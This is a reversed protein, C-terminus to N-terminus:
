NSLYTRLSHQMYKPFWEYKGSVSNDENGDYHELIIKLAEEVMTDLIKMGDIEQQNEVNLKFQEEEVIKQFQKNLQRKLKKTDFDIKFKAM